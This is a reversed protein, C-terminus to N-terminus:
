EFPTAPCRLQDVQFRKKRASMNWEMTQIFLYQFLVCVYTYIYSLLFVNGVQMHSIGTKFEQFLPRNQMYIWQNSTHLILQVCSLDPIDSNWAFTNMCKKNDFSAFYNYLTM